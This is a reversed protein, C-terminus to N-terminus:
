AVELRSALHKARLKPGKERLNALRKMCGNIKETVEEQTLSLPLPIMQQKCTRWLNKKNTPKGAKFHKIWRYVRINRVLIGLLPSFEITGNFFQNSGKESGLKLHTVERDWSNFKLQFEGRPISSKHLHLNELKEYIRHKM